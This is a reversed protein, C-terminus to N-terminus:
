LVSQNNQFGAKVRAIQRRWISIMKINQRKCQTRQMKYNIYKGNCNQRRLKNKANQRKRNIKPNKNNVM